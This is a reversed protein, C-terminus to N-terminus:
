QRVTANRKIPPVFEIFRLSPNNDSHQTHLPHPFLLSLSLNSNAACVCVCMCMLSAYLRIVNEIKTHIYCYINNITPPPDHKIFPHINQRYCYQLRCNLTNQAYPLSCFMYSLWKMWTSYFHFHFRFAYLFAWYVCVRVRVCPPAWVVKYAIKCNRLWILSVTSEILDFVLESWVWSRNRFQILDCM